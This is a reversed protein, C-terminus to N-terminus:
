KVEVEARVRGGTANQVRDQLTKFSQWRNTRSRSEAAKWKFLTRQAAPSVAMLLVDVIGAVGTKGAITFQEIPADIEEILEEVLVPEYRKSRINAVTRANVKDGKANYRAAWVYMYGPKPDQVLNKANTLVSGHKGALYAHDLYSADEDDLFGLEGNPLAIVARNNVSAEQLVRQNNNTIHGASRAAQSGFDGIPGSPILGADKRDNLVERALSSIDEPM